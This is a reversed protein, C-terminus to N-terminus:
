IDTIRPGFNPEYEIEKESIEEQDPNFYRYVALMAIFTLFDSFWTQHTKIEYIGLNKDLRVISTSQVSKGTGIETGCELAHAYAAVQLFYSPRIKASVKFDILDNGLWDYTGAYKLKCNCFVTQESNIWAPKEERRWERYAKYANVVEIPDSKSPQAERSQCDELILEHVRTGIKMAEKTAKAAEVKGKKLVYDLYDPTSFFNLVTSVRVYRQGNREYYDKEM